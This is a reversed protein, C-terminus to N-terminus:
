LEVDVMTQLVGISSIVASESFLDKWIPVVDVDRVSMSGQKTQSVMTLPQVTPVSTDRSQSM